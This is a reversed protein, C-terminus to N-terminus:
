FVLQWGFKVRYDIELQPGDLHQYMPLGVEIALRNGQLKGESVNLDIGFLLDIRDGGRLDTRSTPVMMPNLEPDAGHINGWKKGDLRLSASAYRTLKRAGWITLSGENGLRYDNDNEGLRITGKLQSGWSWNDRQDTYTIGPLLDYTGSGIQMPYPLKQDAGAPTDDRKDISGTPFSIGINLLIKRNGQENVTYIGCLKADGVGESETTFQAGMRNVHDMSKLNYPMMGMLTFRDTVGYMLGFMHMQMTMKTPSVMFDNLIQAPSVNSSGDRNEKMHMTSYSYSFMWEGKKHPHEGMVGIPGYVHSAHNHHEHHSHDQALVYSSAFIMFFILSAKIIDKMKRRNVKYFLGKGLM